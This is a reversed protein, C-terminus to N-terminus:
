KRLKRAERIISMLKGGEPSKNRLLESATPSIKDAFANAGEAFFKPGVEKIVNEIVKEIGFNKLASM